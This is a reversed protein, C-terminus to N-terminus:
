LCLQAMSIGKNYSNSKNHKLVELAMQMKIQPAESIMRHEVKLAEAIIMSGPVIEHNNVRIVEFFYYTICLYTYVYNYREIHFLTYSTHTQTKCVYHKQLYVKM